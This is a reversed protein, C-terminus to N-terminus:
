LKFLKTKIHDVNTPPFSIYVYISATQITQERQNPYKNTQNTNQLIYKLREM